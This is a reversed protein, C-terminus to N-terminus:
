VMAGSERGRSSMMVEEEEEREEEKGRRSGRKRKNGGDTTIVESVSRPGVLGEWRAVRRLPLCIIGSLTLTMGALYFAWDDSGTADSLAGAIPAGIMSSSGQCMIVFGFTTTLKELGMLEVMIISRLSVFVAISTGFVACYIALIYYQSYFPVFLTAVGGIILAVNNILLCDACPLDSVFGVAVRGVINTIGIVSILFAASWSDSGMDMAYTPMYTFPVFFGAM